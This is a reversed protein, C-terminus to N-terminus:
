WGTTSAVSQSKHIHNKTTPRDKEEPLVPEEDPSWSSYLQEVLIMHPMTLLSIVIFVGGIVSPQLASEPGPGFWVILCFALAGLVTMAIEGYLQRRLGPSLRREFFQLQDRASALSHWFVFYVTFGLLLSNTFFMGMLLAYALCELLMRRADLSGSLWLSVLMVFNVLGMFGIFLLVTSREPADLVTSTMTAVIAVAEGAHLLIPTLLIGVGWLLYHARALVPNDHKVDVWNSQGFHYVSLLIFILFAVMPIFYWVLGYTAIVGVYLLYFRLKNNALKDKRLALFLGHDTAGHPLGLLLMMGLVLYPEFTGLMESAFSGLFIFAVTILMVSPHVGGSSQHSPHM